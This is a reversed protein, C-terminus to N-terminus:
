NQKASYTADSRAQSHNKKHPEVARRESQTPEKASEAPKVASYLIMKITEGNRLATSSKSYSNEVTVAGGSDDDDQRSSFFLPNYTSRAKQLGRIAKM